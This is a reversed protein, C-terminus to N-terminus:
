APGPCGAASRRRGEHARDDAVRRASAAAKHARGTFKVEGPSGHGHVRRRGSARGPRIESEASVSAGNTRTQSLGIRLEHFDLGWLASALPRTPVTGPIRGAGDIAGGRASLLGWGSPPVRSRSGRRPHLRVAAGPATENRIWGGPWGNPDLSKRPPGTFDSCTHLDVGPRIGSIPGAMPARLITPTGGLVSVLPAGLHGVRCPHGQGLFEALQHLGLV